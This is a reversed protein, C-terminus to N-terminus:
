PSPSKFGENKRDGAWGPLSTQPKPGVKRSGVAVSGVSPCPLHPAPGVMTKSVCGFCQVIPTKDLLMHDNAPLLPRGRTFWNRACYKTVRLKSCPQNRVDAGIM